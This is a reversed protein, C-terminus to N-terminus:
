LPLLRCVSGALSDGGSSDCRCMTLLLPLSLLFHRDGTLNRQEMTNEGLNRLQCFYFYDIIDRHLEGGEGGEMLSFFPALASVRGESLPEVGGRIVVGEEGSLSGYSVASDKSASDITVRWMNVSLDSGGASFVYKGDCSVALATIEGPHAVIGVTQM